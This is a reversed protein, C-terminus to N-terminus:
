DSWFTLTLVVIFCVVASILGGFMHEPQFAGISAFAVSAMNLWDTCRRAMSKIKDDAM